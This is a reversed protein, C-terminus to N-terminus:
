SIASGRSPIYPCKLLDRQLGPRMPCSVLYLAPAQARGAAAEDGGGTVAPIRVRVVALRTQKVSRPLLQCSCELFFWFCCLPRCQSCWRGHCARRGEHRGARPPHARVHKVCYWKAFLVASAGCILSPHTLFNCTKSSERMRGERM